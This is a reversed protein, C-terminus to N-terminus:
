MTVSNMGLLTGQFIDQWLSVYVYIIQVILLRLPGYLITRTYEYKIFCIKM